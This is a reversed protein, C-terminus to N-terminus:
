ATARVEELLRSVVWEPRAPKPVIALGPCGALLRHPIGTASHFIFPISAAMLWEAVPSAEGDELNADLIAADVRAVDLLHLAAAASAVPGAVVGGADLVALELGLATIAEDEVIMVHFGSAVHGVPPAHFGPTTRIPPTHFNVM